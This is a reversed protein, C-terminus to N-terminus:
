SEKETNASRSPDTGLETSISFPTVEQSVLTLCARQPGPPFAMLWDLVVGM